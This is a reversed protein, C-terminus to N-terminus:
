KFAEVSLLSARWRPLIHACLAPSSSLEDGGHSPWAGAARSSLMPGDLGPTCVARWSSSSIPWLALTGSWLMNAISRVVNCNWRMLLYSWRHITEKWINTLDSSHKTPPKLVAQDSGFATRWDINTSNQFYKEPKNLPRQTGSSNSVSTEPHSSSKRTKRALPGSAEWGSACKTLIQVFTLYTFRGNHLAVYTNICITCKIPVEFGAMTSKGNLINSPKFVCIANYTTRQVNRKNSITGYVIRTGFYFLYLTLHLHRSGVPQIRYLPFM